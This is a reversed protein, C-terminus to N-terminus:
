IIVFSAVAGVFAVVLGFSISSAGSNAEAISGGVPTAADTENAQVIFETLIDCALVAGDPDHVVAPFNLLDEIPKKINIFSEGQPAM